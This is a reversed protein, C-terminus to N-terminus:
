AWADLVAQRVGRDDDGALGAIAEALEPQRFQALGRVGALRVTAAPDSLATKLTPIFKPDAITGMATLLAERLTPGYGNVAPGSSEAYRALLVKVAKDRANGKLPASVALRALAEAAAAAVPPDASDVEALVPAIVRPSKLQGLATLLGEKVEPIQEVKLRGLLLDTANPDGLNAELLAAARRIRPDDDALMGTFQGRLEDPITGATSLRRDILKVGTLRVDTLPDKLFSLLLKDQMVAPTAAYIDTMAAALRTRLEANEDELRAKERALSEALDALWASAPKEKNKQWWQAWKRHNSGFARINTLKALSEAAANRIASDQDGTLQVLVDVAQRDLVRQVATITVLRVAKEASKDKAIALLKEAVGGTRYAALARAAPMRVSPETGTLMAMLPEVFIQNDTGQTAIAEAVAVQAMRNTPDELFKKLSEAAQSYKRSLLLEAAETKTKAARAPDALQGTFMKLELEQEPTLAAARALRAAPFICLGIALWVAATRFVRKGLAM